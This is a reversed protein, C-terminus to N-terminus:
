SAEQRRWGLGALGIGLLLATGPEPLTVTHVSGTGIGIGLPGSDATISGSNFTFFHPLIQDPVPATGLLTITAPVIGPGVMLEIDTEGRADPFDPIAEVQSVSGGLDLGGLLDLHMTATGHNTALYNGPTPDEDPRFQDVTIVASWDSPGPDGPFQIDGTLLIETAVAASAPHLSDFRFRLRPVAFAGNAHPRKQVYAADDECRGRPQLRRPTGADPAVSMCAAAGVQSVPGRWESRLRSYAEPSEPTLSYRTLRRRHPYSM